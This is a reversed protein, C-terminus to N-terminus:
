RYTCGNVRGCATLGLLGMWLGAMILFVKRKVADGGNKECIASQERELNPRSGAKYLNEYQVGILIKLFSKLQRFPM